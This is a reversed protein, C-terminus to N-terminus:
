ELNIIWYLYLQKLNIIWYLYLQKKFVFIKFEM